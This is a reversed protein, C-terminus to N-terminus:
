VSNEFDQQLLWGTFHNHHQFNDFVYTDTSKYKIAMWVQDGLKLNLTSEMDYTGFQENNGVIYTYKLFTNSFSHICFIADSLWFCFSSPVDSVLRYLKRLITVWSRTTIFYVPRRQKGLKSHVLFFDRFFNKKEKWKVTSTWSFLQLGQSKQRPQMMMEM